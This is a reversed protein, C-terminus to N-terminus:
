ILDLSSCSLRVREHQLEEALRSWERLEVVRPNGALV